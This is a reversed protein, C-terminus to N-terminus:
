RPRLLPKRIPTRQPGSRRPRRARRRRLLRARLGLARARIGPRYLGHLAQRRSRDAVVSVCRWRPERNCRARDRCAHRRNGLAPFQQGHRIGHRGRKRRRFLLDGVAAPREESPNWSTGTHDKLVVTGGNEDTAMFSGHRETWFLRGNLATLPADSMPRLAPRVPNTGAMSGDSLWMRIEGGDGPGFFALHDGIAVLQRPDPRRARHHRDQHRRDALSRDRRRRRWGGGSEVDLSFFLYRGAVTLASPTSVYTFTRRLYERGAILRTGASTGDTWWLKGETAFAFGGAFAALGSPRSSAPGRVIDKVLRTGHATGDSRWLELGHEPDRAAFYLVKGLALMPRGAHLSGHTGPYIETVMHTGSSTGDSLWLEQGHRGDNATFVLRSGFATLSGIGGAAAGKRIDKM